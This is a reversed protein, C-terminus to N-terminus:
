AAIDMERPERPERNGATKSDTRRRSIRTQIRGNTGPTRQPINSAEDGDTTWPRETQKGYKLRDAHAHTLTSIEDPPALTGALWADKGRKAHEGHNGKGQEDKIRAGGHFGHRYGETLERQESHSIRHRM